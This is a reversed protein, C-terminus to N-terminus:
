FPLIGDGALKPDGRTAANKAFTPNRGGTNHRDVRRARGDIHPESL